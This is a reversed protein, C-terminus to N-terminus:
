NGFFVFIAFVAPMLLWSQFYNMWEFYIATEDGYYDRIENTNVFLNTLVKVGKLLNSSGPETGERQARIARSKSHLPVLEELLDLRM